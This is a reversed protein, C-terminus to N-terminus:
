GKRTALGYILQVIGGFIVAAIGISWYTSENPELNYVGVLVGAVVAFGVGAGISVAIRAKKDLGKDRQNEWAAGAPEQPPAAPSPQTAATRVPEGGAFTALFQYLRRWNEAMIYEDPGKPPAVKKRAGGRLEVYGTKSDVGRIDAYEFRDAGQEQFYTYCARDTFLFAFTPKGMLTKRVYGALPREHEPVQFFNAGPMKALRARHSTPDFLWGHTGVSRGSADAFIYKFDSWTARRTMPAAADRSALFEYLRTWSRRLPNLHSGLPALQRTEGSRLKVKGSKGDVSRVQGYEFRRVGEDPYHTYCARDTFLFAFKIGGLFTKKAYGALPSENAPIEFLRAGPKGQVDAASAGAKAVWAGLVPSATAFIYRFDDANAHKAVPATPKPSHEGVTFVQACNPCKARRGRFSEEVDKSWGCGPCLAKM